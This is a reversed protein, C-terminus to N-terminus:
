LDIIEYGLKSLKEKHQAADGVVVIVMEDTNFYKKALKKIDGKKMKKLIKAQQAPYDAALNYLLIKYFYSLRSGNTEYALAEKDLISSKTFELEDGTIGKKVYKNIDALIEILASDTANARVGTSVIWPGAQLSGSFSSRAGYTYGKAERLNMNIRSNFNGGLMFNMITARYYEGTADYPIGMFGVRIESQPANAKNVLYIKTKAKNPVAPLNLTIEDGPQFIGFMPMIQQRLQQDIDGVMLVNLNNIKIYKQYYEKIDDLTISEVTEKSGLNYFSLPHTEGYLLKSFVANAKAAANTELNAISQLQNKKIRDFEDQKFAPSTMMNLALNATIFFNNKIASVSGVIFQDTSYVEFSSGLRKFRENMQEADSQMTSEKLMKATINAIGAKGAPEYAQGAKFMFQAEIVPIDSNKSVLVKMGGPGDTITYEPATVVPSETKSPQKSRDFNDVANRPKLSDYNIPKYKTSDGGVTFNDEAAILKSEGKPVISLIMAKQGKVYTNYVRIVDDETVNNYRNLDKSIYNPNDLYIQFEALQGAKGDLSEITSYARKLHQNKAAELDEPKVGRKEFEVLTERWEKEIDGLNSGPNASIQFTFEGALEYTPHYSVANLAKGTKVFKKFLLSNNGDGLIDALIDLAAEDKDFRPVTPMSIYLMPMRVNDEYHVYRDKELKFDVPNQKEVLPGMPISGYYKEIWKLVQGSNIDGAVTLVANNPGYWRLFFKKLDEITVRDLDATYGITTWSYPHAFPYLTRAKYEPIMGYPRNDYNQGKENKVVSRQLEFKEQTIADLFFGMRDAELWLATELYNKPIKEFYNTRDTNTTGNMIGGAGSIIKFHQDDGVNKSGQFMMHEFFHAFGSKKLEERASGVHYTVNVFAIPNTHDEHLLVTLGNPLKYKQYSITVDDPAPSRKVDEILTSQAKMQIAFSLLFLMTLCYTKQIVRKM